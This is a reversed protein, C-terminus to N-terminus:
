RPAEAKGPTFACPMRKIGHIFNSALREPPGSIQLDPIRQFLERFFVKIERRALNAGLCFHPGPAGFGVHENPWRRVDFDFPNDWVAEDRNGSPYLLLLKDGERIRQGRVETDALATRNMNQIPSVWRLMEEVATPIRGPDDVLLKWQDPHRLLQEMGGSIVHRTTEDGGVLILLSEHLLAEEDLGEGDIRAHVLM